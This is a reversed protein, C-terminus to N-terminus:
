AGGAAEPPKHRVQPLPRNQSQGDSVIGEKRLGDLGAMSADEHGLRGSLGREQAMCRAGSTNQCHIVEGLTQDISLVSVYCSPPYM